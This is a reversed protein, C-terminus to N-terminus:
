LLEYEAGPSNVAQKEKSKGGKATKRRSGKKKTGAM